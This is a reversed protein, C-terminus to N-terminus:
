PKTLKFLRKNLIKKPRLPHKVFMGKLGNQCNELFFFIIKDFMVKCLLIFYFDYFSKKKNCIAWKKCFFFHM